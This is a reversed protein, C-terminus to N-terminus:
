SPKGPESQKAVTKNRPKWKRPNTFLSSDAVEHAGKGDIGVKWLAFIPRSQYNWETGALFYISKGDPAFRPQRNYRSVNTVGLARPPVTGRHLLVIDYHFPTNLDAIFAVHKGGRVIATDGILVNQEANLTLSNLLMKPGTKGSLDAEYLAYTPHGALGEGVTYLVTKGDRALATSNLGYFKADTIRQPESGDSGMSYVDSDDWVWGGMSYPRSRVSRCFVIQTGDFSYSPHADSVESDQTLQRVDTGDLLCDFIASAAYESTRAVYVVRKGDPSFSPESEILDTETVQSVVSTTLNLLWLDGGASSFVVQKGDPSVDFAVNGHEVGSPIMMWVTLGLLVAITVGIVGAALLYANAKM